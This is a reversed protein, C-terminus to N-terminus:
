AGDVAHGATSSASASSTTAVIPAAFPNVRATTQWDTSSAASIAGCRGAPTSVVICRVSMPLSNPDPSTAQYASRLNSLIMTTAASVTPTVVRIKEVVELM